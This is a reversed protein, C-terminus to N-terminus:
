MIPRIWVLVDRLDAGLAMRVGIEKRRRAVDYSLVGYVGIAALMLALGAFSTVLLMSFRRDAVGGALVQRMARMEGLALNPDLRAVEARLEDELSSAASRGRALVYMSRYPFQRFTFYVEPEVPNVLSNNRV